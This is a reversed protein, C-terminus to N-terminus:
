LEFFGRFRVFEKTGAFVVTLSKYFFESLEFEELEFFGRFRVFIETGLGFKIM